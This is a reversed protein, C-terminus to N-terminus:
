CSPAELTASSRVVTEIVQCILEAGAAFPLHIRGGNDLQITVLDASGHPPSQLAPPVVVPVFTSVGSTVPTSLTTRLAFRRKWSHFAATSIGERKCFQQITFGSNPQQRLRRRWLSELAPDALRPM